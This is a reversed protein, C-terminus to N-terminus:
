TIRYVFFYARIDPEGLTYARVADSQEILKWRGADALAQQKEKFGKDRYVDDRVTFVIYGGPQTIRVLEDFSDAPAHGETFVGTSIVAAFHKDEFELPGGLQMQLLSRYAGTRKAIDLMDRSLDIATLNRYGLVSLSEGGLGTGAGADLIEADCSPVYRTIFAAVLFPLRYGSGATDADYSESWNDYEAELAATDGSEYISKLRSDDSNGTM